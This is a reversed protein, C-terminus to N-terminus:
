RRWRPRGVLTVRQGPEDFGPSACPHDASFPALIVVKWDLGVKSVQHRVSATAQEANLCSARLDTDVADVLDSVKKATAPGVTTTTAETPPPAASQMPSLGLDGCVDSGPSAPFIAAIGTSAVCAVLNPVPGSGVTGALWAAACTAVPGGSGAAVLTQHATLSDESYCSVYAHKTVGQRAIAYAVGSSLAAFAAIGVIGIRHRRRRGPRPSVAGAGYPAGTIMEYMHQAHPSDVPLPLRHEDVPNAERLLELIDEERKSM